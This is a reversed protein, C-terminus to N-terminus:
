YETYGQPRRLLRGPLKNLLSKDQGAVNQNVSALPSNALVVVHECGLRKANAPDIFSRDKFESEKDGQLNGGM